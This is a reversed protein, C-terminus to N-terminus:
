FSSRVDLHVLMQAESDRTVLATPTKLNDTDHGLEQPVRQQLSLAFVGVDPHVKSTERRAWWSPSHHRPEGVVPCPSSKRSVRVNTISIGKMTQTSPEVLCFVYSGM